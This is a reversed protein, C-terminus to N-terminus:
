GEDHLTRAGSRPSSTSPPGPSSRQRALYPLDVGPTGTRRRSGAPPPDGWGGGGVPPVFHEGGLDARGNDRENCREAEGGRGHDGGHRLGALVGAGVALAGLRFVFPPM